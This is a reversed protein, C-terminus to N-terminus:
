LHRHLPSLAWRVSLLLPEPTFVPARVQTPALAHGDGPTSLGPLRPELWLQLPELAFSLFISKARGLVRGSNCPAHGPTVRGLRCTGSNTGCETAHLMSAGPAFTPGSGSPGQGPPSWPFCNEWLCIDQGSLVCRDHAKEPGPVSSAASFSTGAGQGQCHQMQTSSVSLWHVSPFPNWLISVM